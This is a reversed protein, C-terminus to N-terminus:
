NATIGINQALRRLAAQLGKRKQAAMGAARPTLLPKDARLSRDDSRDLPAQLIRIDSVAGYGFYTNIREIIQAAKFQVEIAQPGEVRMVLTAGSRRRDRAPAPEHDADELLSVDQSPWRIREPATTRALEPGVIAAWNTLVTATSFGFKEFAARTVNPIFAGVSRPGYRAAPRPRGALASDRTKKNAM